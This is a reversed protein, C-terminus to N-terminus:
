KSQAIKTHEQPYILIFTCASIFLSVLLFTLPNIGKLLELQKTSSFFIKDLIGKVVIEQAQFTSLACVCKM